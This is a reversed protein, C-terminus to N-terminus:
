SLEIYFRNSLLAAPRSALLNIHCNKFTGSYRNDGRKMRITRNIIIFKAFHNFLLDCILCVRDNHATCGTFRRRHRMLLMQIHDAVCHLFYIMPNRNNCAGAGVTGLCRDIQGLFSFLCACVCKENHSRIVILCRLVSQLKM